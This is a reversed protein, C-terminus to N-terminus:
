KTGGSWPREQKMDMLIDLTEHLRIELEKILAQSTDKSTAEEVIHELLEVTRGEIWTITKKLDRSLGRPRRVGWITMALDAVLGVAPNIVKAISVLQQLRPDVTM